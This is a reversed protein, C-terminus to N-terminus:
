RRPPAAPPSRPCRASARTPSCCPAPASPPPPRPRRPRTPAPAHRDRGQRPHPDARPRAGGSRHGGRAPPRATPRRPAPWCPPTVARRRRRPTARRPSRAACRASRSREPRRRPSGITGSGPAAAGENGAPAVVADRAGGRGRRGAGRAFELLGAYRANVGVLAVPVHDSTDSDANPDVAHELGPSSRIPPPRRRSRAAPRGCRLSASPLVREGAAAVVGALATGSTASASGGPDRGPGPRPRPRGRRLRTPTAPSRRPTSATDLVARAAAREPRRARNRSAPVPVPEGSAPHRPARHARARGALELRPSTAPASPRRSATGSAISASSTACCSAVPRSRWACRSRRASSRASTRRQEEAGMAPADPLAGLAPRPLQVLVRQEPGPPQLPSRGDYPVPDALSAPPTPPVGPAAPRPSGRRAAGRRRSALPARRRAGRRAGAAARGPAASRAAADGAWTLRGARRTRTWRWTTRTGGAGMFRAALRDDRRQGHVAGAAARPRSASRLARERLAPERRRRRRDGAAARSPAGARARRAAILAEVIAHEYSAALDRRAAGDGGARPRPGQLAAVDEPGRLLLRPRRRARATPFAFATPDGDPALKSLAPGGPYGLGLLRAGKDFAEGAADDLTQGLTEYGHTTPSARWCRTAAARWCASSRRSSRTASSTRPSMARCTTSPPWRCGARPPWVRRRRLASWCRASWGRGQTVAILEADDLTAGARGLADDVVANVLELHHRSAWEPVVGGFRDHIGQSSVVNARIEGARTVVAACTDDCSTEIGPDHAPVDDLTGRLTAPTRWM